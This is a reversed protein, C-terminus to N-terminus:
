VISERKKVSRYKPGFPVKGNYVPDDSYELNVFTVPLEIEEHLVLGSQSSWFGYDISNLDWSTENGWCSVTNKMPLVRHALMACVRLQAVAVFMSAILLNRTVARTSHPWRTSKAQFILSFGSRIKNLFCGMALYSTRSATQTNLTPQLITRSNQVPPPLPPCQRLHKLSARPREPIKSAETGRPQMTIRVMFFNSALVAAM